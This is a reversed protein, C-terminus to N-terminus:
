GWRGGQQGRPDYRTTREDQGYPGAYPDRPQEYSGYRQDYRGDYQRGGWGGASVPRVATRSVGSLMSIIALGIAAYLVATAIHDIIGGRALFVQLLLVVLVLLVIASFFTAPRPTTLLLLHLLATGALAAIVACVPIITMANDVLAGSREATQIGLEFVNSIILVGVIAIGAAVIATAVGGAWLRKGLVEVDGDDWSRQPYSM